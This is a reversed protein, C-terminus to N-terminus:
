VSRSASLDSRLYWLVGKRPAMALPDSGLLIFCIHAMMIRADIALLAIKTWVFM